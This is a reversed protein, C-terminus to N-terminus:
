TPESVEKIEILYMKENTEEDVIEYSELLKPDVGLVKAVAAKADAPVTAPFKSTHRRAGSVGWSAEYGGPLGETHGHYEDGQYHPPDRRATYRGVTARTAEDLQVVVRPFISKPVEVRIKKIARENLWEIFGKM